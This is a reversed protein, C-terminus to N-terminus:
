EIVKEIFANIKSVGVAKIKGLEMRFKDIHLERYTWYKEYDSEPLSDFIGKDPDVESAPIFSKGKLAAKLQGNEKEVDEIKLNATTLDHELKAIKKLLFKAAGPGNKDDIEEAENFKIGAAEVKEFTKDNVPDYTIMDPTVTGAPEDPINVEILGNDAVEVVNDNPSEAKRAPAPIKKSGKPKTITKAEQPLAEYITTKKDWGLSELLLAKAEIPTYGESVAIDYAAKVRDKLFNLQSQAIKIAQLLRESPERKAKIEQKTTM